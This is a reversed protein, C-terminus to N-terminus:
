NSRFTTTLVDGINFLPTYQMKINYKNNDYIM